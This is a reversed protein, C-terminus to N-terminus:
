NIEIDFYNSSFVINMVKLNSFINTEFKKKYQNAFIVIKNVALIVVKISSAIIHGISLKTFSQTITAIM